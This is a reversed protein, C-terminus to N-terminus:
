NPVSCPAHLVSASFTQYLVLGSRNKHQPQSDFGCRRRKSTNGRFLMFNVWGTWPLKCQLENPRHTCGTFQVDNFCITVPLMALNLKLISQINTSVSSNQILFSARFCLRDDLFCRCCRTQQEIWLTNHSKYPVIPFTPLFPDFFHFYGSKM